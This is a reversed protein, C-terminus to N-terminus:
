WPQGQIGGGGTEAAATAASQWRRGKRGGCGGGTATAAAGQPRRAQMGGGRGPSQKKKLPLFTIFSANKYFCVSM